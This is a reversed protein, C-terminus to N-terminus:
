MLFIIINSQVKPTELVQRDISPKLKLHTRFLGRASPDGPELLFSIKERVFELPGIYWNNCIGM